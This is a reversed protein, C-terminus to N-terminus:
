KAANLKEMLARRRRELKNILRQNMSEGRGKLIPIRTNIRMLKLEDSM